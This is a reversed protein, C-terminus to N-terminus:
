PNGGASDADAAGATRDYTALATDCQEEIKPWDCDCKRKYRSTVYACEDAHGAWMHRITHLAARMIEAANLRRLAPALAEHARINDALLRTNEAEAAALRSQLADISDNMMERADRGQDIELQMAERQAELERARRTNAILKPFVNRLDTDTLLGDAELEELARLEPETLSNTM